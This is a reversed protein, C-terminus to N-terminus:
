FNEDLWKKETAIIDNAKNKMNKMVNLQGDLYGKIQAPSYDQWNMGYDEGIGTSEFLSGEHYYIVNDVQTGTVKFFFNAAEASHFTNDLDYNNVDLYERLFIGAAVPNKAGKILGWGRYTATTPQESNEDWRPLYTVGIYDPNINPYYGTKKLAFCNTLTLGTKGENFGGYGFKLYGDEKMQLWFNLVDYLHSDVNYSFEDNAFTFISSGGAALAVRNLVEAGVYGKGLSAVKKACEKFAAFTWKGAEYYEEPTTINNDQFIKKNYVCIDVESWVNSMTDVLYPHGNLMSMKFTSQRWIPDELNLKAADLPQMVTLSGPFTGNQFYIDAQTGAAISAAIQNVYGGQGLLQIEVNIGYKKEFADVVPGDENAKPDKWTAYKVTTGRYDEPDVLFDIKGENKTNGTDNNVKEKEGCGSLTGFITVLSLVFALFRIKKNLM